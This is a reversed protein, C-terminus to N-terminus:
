SSQPKSLTSADIPYTPQGNVGKAVAEPGSSGADLRTVQEIGKLANLKEMVTDLQQTDFVRLLLNGEFAGAKAEVVIRDMNIQHHAAVVNTIQNVIGLSDIGTIRIEVQYTQQEPQPAQSHDDWRAQVVRYGYQSMLHQGNPCNTRHIKIGGSSSVFGFIPDGPIPNCCKALTYELDSHGGIIMTQSKWSQAVAEAKSTELDPSQGPKHIYSSRPPAEKLYGLAGHLKGSNMNGMGIDYMLAFENDFGFYRVLQQINPDSLKLKWHRAKRQLIERGTRAIERQQEKLARKIHVRAKSTVVFQLWDENPKQKKSTLIEVQDGHKLIYSLPVLRHNVKAGLCHYGVKSHIDFAFDLATAGSPLTRLEGKPTFVYVEREFLNHRFDDLFEVADVEPDVMMDRVRNLWEEIAADTSSSGGKYRWHAAFGKEAIEHMRRTRIQVEVYRGGPGMVTTHLSEYGNAKPMTIWDRLRKPNPKYHDSVISYVSWCEDKERESESNIIIRIAFLDYVQEFPIGQRKMKQYISFINKTRSKIEYSFGRKDLSARIPKVFRRIYNSRQNQTEQIKRRIEEYAEPETYKLALDELESKLAYLGLRHALPAFLTLTESSIKLQNKPSMSEMTRMNHLRDALKVLIVRVDESLTLLMKRFNEAQFSNTKAEIHSIKTLGDIIRAVKAGFTAEIDELTHETDEVVDHLLASIISTPGLNMERVCIQAVALPHFIYAEGSKRRTGKHAEIAFNFAKRIARKQERTIDDSLSRLLSRYTNLLKKYEQEESEVAQAKQDEYEM